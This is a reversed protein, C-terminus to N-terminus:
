CLSERFLLIDERQHEWLNVNNTVNSVRSQIGRQAESSAEKRCEIREQM